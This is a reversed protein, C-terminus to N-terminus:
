AYMHTRAYAVIPYASVLQFENLLQTKSKITIQNCILNKKVKAFCKIQQKNEQM